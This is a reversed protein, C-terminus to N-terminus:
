KKSEKNKKIEEIKELHEKNCFGSVYIYYNKPAPIPIEEGDCDIEL